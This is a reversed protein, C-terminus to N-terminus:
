FGWVNSVKKRNNKLDTRIQLAGNGNNEDLVWRSKFGGFFYSFLVVSLSKENLSINYIFVIFFFFLFVWGFLYNNYDRGLGMTTYSNRKHVIFCFRAKNYIINISGFSCWFLGSINIVYTHQSLSNDCM